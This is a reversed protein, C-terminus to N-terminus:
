SQQHVRRKDGDATHADSRWRCYSRGDATAARVLPHQLLAFWPTSYCRSGLPATAARVLPHQLLAFWRTCVIVPVTFCGAATLVLGRRWPRPTMPVTDTAHIHVCMWMWATSTSQTRPTSTSQTRPPMEMSLPRTVECDLTVARARACVRHRAVKSCRREAGLGRQATRGVVVPVSQSVTPGQRRHSDLRWHTQPPRMRLRSMSAEGAAAPVPGSGRGRRKAQFRAAVENRVGTARPGGGCRAGLPAEEHFSLRAKAGGRVSPARPGPAPRRRRAAGEVMVRRLEWWISECSYIEMMTAMRWRGGSVRDVGGAPRLFVGLGRRRQGGLGSERSGVAAPQPPRFGGFIAGARELPLGARGVGLRRHPLRHGRGLRLRCVRRRGLRHRQGGVRGLRLGGRAGGDPGACRRRRRGPTLRRAQHLLHLPARPSSIHLLM